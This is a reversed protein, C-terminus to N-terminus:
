PTSSPHRTARGRGLFRRWLSSIPVFLVGEAKPFYRRVLWLIVAPVLLWVLPAMAAGVFRGLLHEDM